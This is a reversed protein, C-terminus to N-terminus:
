KGEAASVVKQAAETLSAAPIINFDSEALLTDLEVPTVGPIDRESRNWGLVHM